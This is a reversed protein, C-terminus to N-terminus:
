RSGVPWPRATWRRSSAAARRVARSSGSPWRSRRREWRPGSSWRVRRISDRRLGRGARARRPRLEPKRRHEGRAPAAGRNEGDHNLDFAAVADQPMAPLAAVATKEWADLAANLAPELAKLRGEGRARRGRLDALREDQAVTPLSLVPAPNVPDKVLGKEPVNNFYAFLGYYEKQTIPDYKHDHCRACGVTLGLWVTATTDVRDVVYGIRCEEDISGSENTVMHNRNFGTAIKQDDTAGPLLDGALQEITFRDFPMNGNLARIVWDRWPWAHRELDTYYGNTDAYRAADLWDLAMREGYRPSALLRDVAREYAGPSRDAASADLEAPTPPLGTLDLTVRRLLVDGSEEPSPKLGRRQLEALIFVDIPNRPWRSGGRGVDPLPPSQPPLFAWHPQYEAGQEIWRRLLEIERPLLVLGSDPPPMRLEADEASVRFGLESAEPDGPVIARRGDRAALAEDRRDLRLGAKRKAGDPGHCRFCKDALIPRVDRNYAIPVPASTGEAAAESGRQPLSARRRLRALWLSGHRFSWAPPM